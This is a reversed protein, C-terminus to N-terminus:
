KKRKNIQEQGEASEKVSQNYAESAKNLEDITTKGAKLTSFNKDLGLTYVSLADASEAMLSKFTELDKIVQPDIVQDREIRGKSM